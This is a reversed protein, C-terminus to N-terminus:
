RRRIPSSSVTARARLVGGQLLLLQGSDNWTLTKASARWCARSALSEQCRLGGSGRPWLEFPRLFDERERLEEVEEESKSFRTRWTSFVNFFSMDSTQPAKSANSGSLSTIGDRPACPPSM